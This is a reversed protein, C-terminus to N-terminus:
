HDSHVEELSLIMMELKWYVIKEGTEKDDFLYFDDLIEDKSYTNAKKMVVLSHMSSSNTEFVCRRIQKNMTGCCPCVWSQMAGDWMPILSSSCLSGCKPCRYM